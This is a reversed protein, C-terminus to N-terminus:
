EEQTSKIIFQKVLENPIVIIDENNPIKLIEKDKKPIKKGQFYYNGFDDEYITPCASGSCGGGGHNKSMSVVIKYNNM